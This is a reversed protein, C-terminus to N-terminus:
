VAPTQCTEPRPEGPEHLCEFPFVYITAELSGDPTSGSIEWCGPAPFLLTAAWREGEAGTQPMLSSRLTISADGQLRGEIELDGEVEPYWITDTEAGAWFVAPPDLLLEIGDSYLWYHAVGFGGDALVLDTVACSDPVPYLNTLLAERGDVAWVVDPREEYPLAYATLMLTADGTTVELEWCGPVPLMLLGSAGFLMQQSQVEFEAEQSADSALRGVVEIEHIEPAFPVISVISEGAYWDAEDDAAAPTLGIPVYPAIWIGSGSYWIPFEEISEWGSPQDTSAPTVACGAAEATAAFDITPTPVFGATPSEAAQPSASGPPQTASPTGDSTDGDGMCASFLVMALMLLAVVGRSAM